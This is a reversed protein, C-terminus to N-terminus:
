GGVKGIPCAGIHPLCSMQLAGLAEHVQHMSAGPALQAFAVLGRQDARVREAACAVAAVSADNLFVLGEVADLVSKSLNAADLMTRAWIYAVVVPRKAVGQDRQGLEWGAGLADRCLVGLSDEFQRFTKWRERDAVQGGHYRRFNSKSRIPFDVSFWVARLWPGELTGACSTDVDTM